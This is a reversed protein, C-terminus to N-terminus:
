FSPTLEVGSPVLTRQWCPDKLKRPGKHGALKSMAPSQSKHVKTSKPAPMNPDPLGGAGKPLGMGSLQMSALM